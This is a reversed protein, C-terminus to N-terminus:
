GPNDFFGALPFLSLSLALYEEEALVAAAQTLQFCLLHIHLWLSQQTRGKVTHTQTVYIDSLSHKLPAKTTTRVCVQQMIYRSKEREREREGNKRPVVVLRQQVYMSATSLSNHHSPSIRRAHFPWYLGLCLPSSSFSSSSSSPSLLCFIPFILSSFLLFDADLMFIHYRFATLNSARHLRILLIWWTWQYILFPLFFHRM